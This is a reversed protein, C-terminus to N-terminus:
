FLITTPTTTFINYFKEYCKLTVKSYSKRTSKLNQLILKVAFIEIRFNILFIERLWVCCNANDYLNRVEVQKYYGCVCVNDHHLMFYSKCSNLRVCGVANLMKMAIEGEMRENNYFKKMHQNWINRSFSRVSFITHATHSVIHVPHSHRFCVRQTPTEDESGSLVKDVSNICHRSENKIKIDSIDM